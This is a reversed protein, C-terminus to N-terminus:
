KSASAILDKVLQGNPAQAKPNIAVVQQWVLLGEAKDGLDYFLVIGKNFLAQELSPQLNIAKDFAALAEKFQRLHRHMVGLDTWVDPQGQNLELSKKYAAVALDPQDTDYYLNGLQTWAAVNKPNAKVEKALSSIQATQAPTPGAQAQQGAPPQSATGQAVTAPQSSAKFSSFIVGGLFGVILAVLAAIIMVEKKVLGEPVNASGM